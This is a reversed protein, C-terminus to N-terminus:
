VVLKTGNIIVLFLKSNFSPLNPSIAGVIISKNFKSEDFGLGKLVGTVESKYAYGNQLEFEHTLRSYSALASELATGELHKMNKELDRILVELEMKQRELQMHLAEHIVTLTKITM